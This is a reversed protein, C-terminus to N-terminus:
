LKPNQTVQEAVEFRKRIRQYIRRLESQHDLKDLKKRLLIEKIQHLPQELKPLLRSTHTPDYPIRIVAMGIEAFIKLYCATSMDPCTLRKRSMKLEFGLFTYLIQPECKRGLLNVVRTTGALVEQAYTQCLIEIQRDILIGSPGAQEKDSSIEM